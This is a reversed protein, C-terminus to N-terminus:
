GEKQLRNFSHKLATSVVLSVIMLMPLVIPYRYRWDYDLLIASHFCTVAIILTILGLIFSTQTRSFLGQQIFRYAAFLSIFFSGLWIANAINHILSFDASYPSFFYVLRLLYLYVYDIYSGSMSISVGERETVIAGNAIFQYIYSLNKEMSINGLGYQYFFFAWALTFLSVLILLLSLLPRPKFLWGTHGYSIAFGACALVVPLATPRTFMLLVLLLVFWIKSMPNKANWHVPLTFTYLILLSYLTDTLVFRPWVLHDISTIALLIGLTIAINCVGIKKLTMSFRWAMAAVFCLNLFLYFSKWDSGFVVKVFAILYVPVAYTSLRPYHNEILTFINFQYQILDTAYRDYSNTDFSLGIGLRVMVTLTLVLLLLSSFLIGYRNIINLM